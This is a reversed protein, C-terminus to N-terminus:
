IKSVWKSLHRSNLTFMADARSRHAGAPEPWVEVAGELWNDAFISILLLSCHDSLWPVAPCPPENLTDFIIWDPRTHTHTHTHTHTWAACLEWFFDDLLDPRCKVTCRWRSGSYMYWRRLHLASPRLKPPDQVFIWVFIWFKSRVERLLCGLGAVWEERPDRSLICSSRPSRCFAAPDKVEEVEEDGDSKMMRMSTRHPHPAPCLYTSSVFDLFMM